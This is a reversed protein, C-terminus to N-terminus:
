FYLAETKKGLSTLIAMIEAIDRHKQNLEPPFDPRRHAPNERRGILFQIHTCGQLLFKTLLSAGDAKNWLELIVTGDDAAIARLNELTRRITLVGETVLDIGKIRGIPPISPDPYDLSVRLERNTERAVINAATGGCVAKLCEEKALLREVVEQDREQELPPGVMVVGPQEERVRVGVVTSDDGPVDQYLISCFSILNNVKEYISCDNSRHLGEIYGVINEWQWGLKLTKGIGAHIVGDSFLFLEDGPVLRCHGERIIKGEVESTTFNIPLLSGQRFIATAPNDFEIIRTDGDPKIKVVTFTSYAIKRVQCEPLTNVITKVAEEISLKNKILTAIIKSTLTALINAKVGSGLGDALVILTDDNDQHIEVTDGCLEEGQKKLSKHIIDLSFM